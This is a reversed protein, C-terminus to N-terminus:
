SLEQYSNELVYKLIFFWELVKFIHSSNCIAIERNFKLFTPVIVFQSKM